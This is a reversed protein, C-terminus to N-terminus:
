RSIWITNDKLRGLKLVAMQYLLFNDDIIFNDLINTTYKKLINEIGDFNLKIKSFNASNNKM